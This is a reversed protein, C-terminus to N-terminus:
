DLMKLFAEAERLINYVQMPSFESNFGPGKLDHTPLGLQVSLRYIVSYYGDGMTMKEDCTPIGYVKKEDEPSGHFDWIKKEDMGQRLAKTLRRTLSQNFQYLQEEIYM